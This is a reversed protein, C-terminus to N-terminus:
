RGLFFQRIRQGIGPSSTPTTATPPTVAGGGGTGGSSPLTATASGVAISPAHSNAWPDTRIRFHRARGANELCCLDTDSAGPLGIGKGPDWNYCDFAQVTWDVFTIEFNNGGLARATVHVKSCLTYGGVAYGLDDQIIGFASATDTWVMEVAPGGPVLAGSELRRRAGELFRTRHRMLASQTASHSSFVATPMVLETGTNDLYHLMNRSANPGQAALSVARSHGNNWLTNIDAPTPYRSACTAAVTQCSAAANNCENVVHDIACDLRQLQAAGRALPTFRVLPAGGAGRSMVSDAVTDAEREWQTDPEGVTLGQLSTAGRGQQLVHTLEHALMSRGSQTHPAYQGERFVVHSGVTYALAGVDRASAAASADTHVRVGGFDHGFRSEMFSRAGTDLPQGSSNLVERVSDPVAGADRGSGSASRQLLGKKRGCGECEGGGTHKGCGCKRQLVGEGVPPAAVNAQVTAQATLQNSM